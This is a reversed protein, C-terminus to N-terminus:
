PYLTATLQLTPQLHPESRANSQSHCLGSAVAGIQGKAQSSGYAPAARLFLFIFLIFGSSAFNSVGSNCKPAESSGLPHQWPVCSELTDITEM